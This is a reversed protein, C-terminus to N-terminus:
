PKLLRFDTVCCSRREKTFKRSVQQFLPFETLTRESNVYVIRGHSFDTVGMTWHNGRNTEPRILPQSIPFIVKSVGNRVLKTRLAYPSCNQVGFPIRSVKLWQKQVAAYGCSVLSSMFFSSLVVVDSKAAETILQGYGNVVEDNLWNGPLLSRFVDPHLTIAKGGTTRIKILSRSGLQNRVQCGFVTLMNHLAMPAKRVEESLYTDLVMAMQRPLSTEM